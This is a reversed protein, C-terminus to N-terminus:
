TVHVTSGELTMSAHQMIIVTMSIMVEVSM